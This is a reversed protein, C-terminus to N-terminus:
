STAAFVGRGARPAEPTTLGSGMEEDDGSPALHRGRPRPSLSAVRGRAGRDPSGPVRRAARAGALRPEPARRRAAAAIRRARRPRSVRPRAPGKGDRDPRAPPLLRRADRSAPRRGAGGARARGRRSRRRARALARARDPGGADDRPPRRRPRRLAAGLPEPFRDRLARGDRARLPDRAARVDDERLRSDGRSAGRPGRAAAPVRGTRVLRRRRRLRRAADPRSAAARELRDAKGRAPDRAARRRALRGGASPGAIWERRAGRVTGRDRRRLAPARWA